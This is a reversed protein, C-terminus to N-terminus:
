HPHHPHVVGVPVFVVGSPVGTGRAPFDTLVISTSTRCSSPTIGGETAHNAVIRPFRWINGTGVVAGLMSLLVAFSSSFTGQVALSQM